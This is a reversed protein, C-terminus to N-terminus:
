LKLEKVGVLGIELSKMAKKGAKRLAKEMDDQFHALEDEEQMEKWRVLTDIAEQVDRRIDKVGRGGAVLLKKVAHAIAPDTVGFLVLVRYVDLFTLHAVNKFYHSHKRGKKKKSMRRDGLLVQGTGLYHLQNCESKKM